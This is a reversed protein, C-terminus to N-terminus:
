LGWTNKGGFSGGYRVAHVAVWSIVGDIKIVEEISFPSTNTRKFGERQDAKVQDQVALETTSLTRM